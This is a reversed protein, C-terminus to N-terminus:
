IKITDPNLSYRKASILDTSSSFICEVPVSTGPIALYDKAMKSLNPYKPKNNTQKNNQNETQRYKNKWLNIIQQKYTEILEDDVEQDKFYQLKLRPDIIISIIYVLGNTTPFYKYLKNKAKSIATIIDSSYSDENLFNEIMNLLYNYIPISYNLTPYNSASIELTAKKDASVVEDLPQQLNLAREIMDYTSNWRTKVDDILELKKVNLSFCQRNLRECKQPSKRIKVIIKKL